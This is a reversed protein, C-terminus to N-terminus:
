NVNLTIETYKYAKYLELEEAITKNWEIQKRIFRSFNSERDYQEQMRKYDESWFKRLISNIVIEANELTLDADTIAKVMKRRILEAIDFHLQEHQLLLNNKYKPVVWSKSKVFCSNINIVIRGDSYTEVEYPIALSSLAASSETEPPTGQFDLWELTYNKSWCIRDKASESDQGNVVITFLFFLSVLRIKM